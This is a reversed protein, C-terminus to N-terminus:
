VFGMRLNNVDMQLLSTFLQLLWSILTFLKAVPSFTEIFDV